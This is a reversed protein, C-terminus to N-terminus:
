NACKSVACKSVKDFADKAENVARMWASQNYIMLSGVTFPVILQLM